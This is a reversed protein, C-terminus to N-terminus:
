LLVTGGLTSVLAFSDKLARRSLISCDPRDTRSLSLLPSMTSNAVHIREGKRPENRLVMRRNAEFMWSSPSDEASPNPLATTSVIRSAEEM